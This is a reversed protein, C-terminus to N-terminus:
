AHDAREPNSEIWKLLAGTLQVPRKAPFIENPYVVTECTRSKKAIIKIVQGNLDPRTSNIALFQRVANSQPIEYYDVTTMEVIDLGHAALILQCETPTWLHPHGSEMAEFFQARGNPNTQNLLNVLCDYGCANPTTLFLSGGEKLVRSIQFVTWAPDRFLHELVETFLVNSITGDEFPFRESEIDIRIIPYPSFPVDISITHFNSAPNVTRLMHTLFPKDSGVEVVDSGLPTSLMDLYRTKHYKADDVFIQRVDDPLFEYFRSVAGDYDQLLPRLRAAHPDGNPAGKVLSTPAPGEVGQGARKLAENSAHRERKFFSSLGM